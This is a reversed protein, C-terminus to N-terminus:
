RENEFQATVPEIMLTSRKGSKKSPSLSLLRSGQSSKFDIQKERARQGVALNRARHIAPVMAFQKSPM